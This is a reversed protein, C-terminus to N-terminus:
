RLIAVKKGNGHSPVHGLKESHKEIWRVVKPWFDKHSSMSTTIGIHGKAMEFTEKEKSSVKDLLVTISAPPAIHDYTAILLLLPCDIKSLDATEGLAKFEGKVLKNQQYWEKIYQRYTEGPIAPSDFIWRDMCLFGNTEGDLDLMELFAGYKSVILNVPDVLLFATNLLQGPANNYADVIADPNLGRAWVTLPNDTSFDIPAAQLVLNKINHPRIASYAATLTGGLCYGHATIRSVGKLRKINEVSKDLFDFYDDLTLYKDVASPYGWDLMYVDFGARLYKDVVSIDPRLDLIYPRNIFAYVIVIPPRHKEETVPSYHLLRFIGEEDAIEFRSLGVDSNIECVKAMTEAFSPDYVKAM